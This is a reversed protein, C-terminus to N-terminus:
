PSGGVAGAASAPATSSPLHHPTGSEAAPQRCCDAVHLQRQSSRVAPRSRGASKVQQSPPVDEVLISATAPGKSVVEVSLVSDYAEASSALHRGDPAAVDLTYGAGDLLEESCWHPRPPWVAALRDDADADADADGRPRSRAISHHRRGADASRRWRVM